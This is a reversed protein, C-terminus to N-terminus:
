SRVVPNTFYQYIVPPREGRKTLIMIITLEGDADTRAPKDLVTWGNTSDPWMADGDAWKYVIASNFVDRPKLAVESSLKGPLYAISVWSETNFFDFYVAWEVPVESNAPLGSFNWVLATEGYPCEMEVAEVGRQMVGPRIRAAAVPAGDEWAQDRVPEASLIVEAATLSDGIGPVDTVSAEGGSVCAVNLLVSLSLLAYLVYKM